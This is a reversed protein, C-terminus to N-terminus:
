INVVYMYTYIIYLQQPGFKNVKNLRSAFLYVVYFSWFADVLAGIYTILTIGCLFRDVIWAHYLVAFTFGLGTSIILSMIVLLYRNSIAFQSGQFTTKM